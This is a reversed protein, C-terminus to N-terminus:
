ILNHRQTQHYLYSSSMAIAIFTSYVHPSEKFFATAPLPIAETMWWSAMLLLIALVSQMSSALRYPDAAGGASRSMEEALTMFGDFVPLALTVVFLIIGTVFGIKQATM